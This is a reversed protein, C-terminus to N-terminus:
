SFIRILTLLRRLFVFINGDTSKFGISSALVEMKQRVSTLLPEELKQSNEHNKFRTYFHLFRSLEQMQNNRVLADSILTGQKEDAKHVAEFRNCRFYGGTASSHRKWSEQCM